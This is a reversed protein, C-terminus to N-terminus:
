HWTWLSSMNRTDLIKKEVAPVGAALTNSKIPTRVVSGAAIVCNDGIMSGSLITTQIGCWVNNGISITNYVPQLTEPDHSGSDIHLGSAGIFGTGITIRTHNAITVNDGLACYDGLSIGKNNNVLMLNRGIWLTKPPNIGYTRLFIKRLLLPDGPESLHSEAESLIWFIGRVLKTLLHYVIRPFPKVSRLMPLYHNPNTMNPDMNALPVTEQSQM